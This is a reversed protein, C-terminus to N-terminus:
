MGVWITTKKFYEREFGYMKVNQDVQFSYLSFYDTCEGRCEPEEGSWSGYVLCTRETDGQYQKFGENCSVTVVDGAQTGNKTLTGDEPVRPVGCGRCFTSM